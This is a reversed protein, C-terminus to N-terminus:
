EVGEGLSTLDTSLKEPLMPFTGAATYVSTTNTFAHTDIATNKKVIADVDAIAVLVRVEDGPRTEAATLQDLDRSDDNDVSFWVMARLDRVLPESATAAAQIGDTEHLVAASFDPLLGRQLMAERAIDHLSKAGRMIKMPM